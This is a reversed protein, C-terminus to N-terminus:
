SSSIHADVTNRILNVSVSGGLAFTDAASGAATANYINANETAGVQVQQGSVTVGEIRGAVTNKIDNASIAAGVAATGTSISLAGALSYIGSSDSAAVVVNGGATIQKGAASATIHADSSGRMLNVNLSGGLTWSTGFVGGVAISVLAQSVPV